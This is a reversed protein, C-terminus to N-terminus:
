GPLVVDASLGLKVAYNEAAYEPRLIEARCPHPEIFWLYPIGATAPNNIHARKAAGAQRACCCDVSLLSSCNRM